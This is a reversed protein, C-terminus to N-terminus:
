RQNFWMAAYDCIYYILPAAFWKFTQSRDKKGSRQAIDLTHATPFCFSSVDTSFAFFLLIVLLVDYEGIALAYMAFFLFHVGYFLEYPISHRFFATGAMLLQISLLFPYCILISKSQQPSYSYSIICCVAVKSVLCGLICYGTIM